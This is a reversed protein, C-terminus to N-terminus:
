RSPEFEPNARASLIRIKATKPAPLHLINSGPVGREALWDAYVVGDMKKPVLRGSEQPNAPRNPVPKQRLGRRLLPRNWM